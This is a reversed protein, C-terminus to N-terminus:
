KHKAKEEAVGEAHASDHLLKEAVVKEARRAKNYAIWALVLSVAAPLGGLILAVKVAESM